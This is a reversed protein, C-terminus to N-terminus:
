ASLTAYHLLPRVGPCEDHAGRFAHEEHLDMVISDHIGAAKSRWVKPRRDPAADLSAFREFLGHEALHGLFGIQGSDRKAGNKPFPFYRKELIATWTSLVFSVEHNPGSGFANFM